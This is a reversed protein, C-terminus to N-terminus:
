RTTATSTRKSRTPTAVSRQASKSSKPLDLGSSDACQKFAAEYQYITPNAGLFHELEAEDHIVEGAWTTFDGAICADMAVNSWTLTHAIHVVEGKLRIVTDRGVAERLRKDEADLDLDVAQKSSTTAMARNVRRHQPTFTATRRELYKTDKAWRTIPPATLVGASVPSFCGPLQRAPM